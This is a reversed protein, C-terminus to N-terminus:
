AEFESLVQPPGTRPTLPTAATPSASRGRASLACAATVSPWAGRAQADACLCQSFYKRVETPRDREDRFIPKRENGRATVRSLAGPFQVRLPRAM